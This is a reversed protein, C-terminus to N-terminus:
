SAANFVKKQTKLYKELSIIINNSELSDLENEDVDVDNDDLLKVTYNYLYQIVSSIETASLSISIKDYDTRKKLEEIADILSNIHELKLEGDRVSNIYDILYGRFNKIEKPERKKIVFYAVGSITIITIATATVITVVPHAKAIQLVRQPLNKTERLKTEITDLHKFIEGKQPGTACRVINGSRNLKGSVIGIIIEDPIYISEQIIQGM